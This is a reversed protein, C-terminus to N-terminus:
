QRAPIPVAGNEMGFDPSPGYTLEQASQWTPLLWCFELSALLRCGTWSACWELRTRAAKMCLKHTRENAKWTWHWCERTLVPDLNSTPM